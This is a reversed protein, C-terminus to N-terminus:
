LLLDSGCFNNRRIKFVTLIEWDGKFRRRVYNAISFFQLEEWQSRMRNFKNIDKVEFGGRVSDQNWYHAKWIIM